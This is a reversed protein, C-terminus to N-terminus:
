AEHTKWWNLPLVVNELKMSLHYFLSENKMLGQLTTKNSTMKGFIFKNKADVIALAIGGIINLNLFQFTAV